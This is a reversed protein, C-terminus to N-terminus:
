PLGWSTPQIWRTEAPFGPSGGPQKNRASGGIALRVAPELGPNGTRLGLIRGLTRNENLFAAHFEDVGIFKV